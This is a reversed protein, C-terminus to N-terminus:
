GLFFTLLVSVKDVSQMAGVATPVLSEPKLLGEVAASDVLYQKEYILKRATSVKFQRHANDVRAMTVRQERDRPMGLNHVQSLPIVRTPPVTSVSM